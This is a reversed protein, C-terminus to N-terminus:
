HQEIDGQLKKGGRMKGTRRESLIPEVDSGLFSVQRPSIKAIVTKGLGGGAIIPQAHGMEPSCRAARVKLWCKAANQKEHKQV